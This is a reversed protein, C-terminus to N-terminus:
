EVPTVGAYIDTATQLNEGDFKITNAVLQNQANYSGQVQVQLGPELITVSM